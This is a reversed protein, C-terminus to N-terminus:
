KNNKNNKHKFVSTIIKDAVESVSFLISMQETLFKDKMSYPYKLSHDVEGWAEEFLTRVQFEMMVDKYYSKAYIHISEYPTPEDRFSVECKTKNEYKTKVKLYENKREINSTYFKIQSISEVTNVFHKLYTLKDKQNICLVRFGILDKFYSLYNDKNIHKRKKKGQRLIKIILHDVDKVRFRVFYDNSKIQIHGIKQKMFRKAEDKLFERQENFDDYIEKIKIAEKETFKYKAKPNIKKIKNDLWEKDTMTMVEKSYEYKIM